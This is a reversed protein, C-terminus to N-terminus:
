GLIEAIFGGFRDLYFDVDAETMPFLSPPGGTAAPGWVGRNAMYLPM